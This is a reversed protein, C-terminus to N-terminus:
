LAPLLIPFAASAAVAEAVPIPETIRGHASCSSVQSGFRVANTTILDTASIVNALGAHTV